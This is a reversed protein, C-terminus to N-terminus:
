KQTILIVRGIIIDGTTKVPLLTVNYNKEFLEDIPTIRIILCEELKINKSETFIKNIVDIHKEDKLTDSIVLEGLTKGYSGRLGSFMEEAKINLIVIKNSKNDIGIIALNSKKEIEKLTTQYYYISDWAKNCTEYTNVIKNIVNQINKFEILMREHSKITEEKSKRNPWFSLKFKDIIKNVFALM